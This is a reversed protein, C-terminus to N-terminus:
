PTSRTACTAHGPSSGIAGTATSSDGRGVTRRRASGSTPLFLFEFAYFTNLTQPHPLDSEIVGAPLLAHKGWQSIVAPRGKDRWSTHLISRHWYTWLDTPEHTAPDYGVWM